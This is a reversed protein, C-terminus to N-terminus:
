IRYTWTPNNPVYHYIAINTNVGGPEYYSAAIEKLGDGDFDGVALLDFLWGNPATMHMIVTPTPFPEFVQIESGRVAVIQQYGLANGDFNGAAINQWGVDSGSTWRTVPNPYRSDVRIRGTSEILVIEASSFAQPATPATAQRGAPAAHISASAPAVLALLTSLTLLLISRSSRRM